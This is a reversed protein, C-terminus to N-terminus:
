GDTSTAEARQTPEVPTAGGGAGARGYLRRSGYRSNVLAVGGIILATGLLLRGDVPESLVILGLVIGFVPLVYAVMSTRTAGWRKLLRFYM